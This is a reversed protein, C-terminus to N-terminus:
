YDGGNEDVAVHIRALLQPTTPSPAPNSSGLLTKEVRGPWNTTALVGPVCSGLACSRKKMSISPHSQRSKWRVRENENLSLNQVNRPGPLVARARPFDMVSKRVGNQRAIVMRRTSRDSLKRGPNYKPVGNSPLM